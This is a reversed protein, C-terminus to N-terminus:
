REHFATDKALFVPKLIYEFLTKEGTVIDVEGTMGPTMRHTPDSGVYEQDLRIEAVFYREGTQPIEISSPSVRMVEGSVAGFRSFDFSDIKVLARQGVEVFGIDRPSIRAEFLVGEDTPVIEAVTGGPEIVTGVPTDSVNQIIGNVPSLVSIDGSDIRLARFQAEIEALQELIESRKARAESAATSRITDGESSLAVLRANNAERQAVLEQYGQQAQTFQVQVSLLRNAPIIGQEVGDRIRALQARAEEYASQASPLELEVARLRANVEAMEQAKGQAQSVELRNQEEFLALAESVLDPFDKKFEAFNPLRQEAIAALRELDIELGAKRATLEEVDRDISSSRFRAIVQGATVIDGDRVSLEELVGGLPTQLVQVRQAPIIGGRSKALEDIRAFVATVLFAVVLILIGYLLRRVSRITQDHSLSAGIALPPRRDTGVLDVISPQVSTAM